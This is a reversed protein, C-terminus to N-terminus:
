GCAEMGDVHLHLDYAFVVEGLVLMTQTVIRGQHYRSLRQGAAEVILLAWGERDDATFCYRTVDLGDVLIRIQAGADRLEQSQPVTMLM